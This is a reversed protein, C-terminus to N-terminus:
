SFTSANGSKLQLDKLATHCGKAPRFGHSCSLFQEEFILTLILEIAKQVIKQRPSGIGLPRTEGPKNPKPIYIRRAPTFKFNGSKIIRSTRLIFELDIKDLTANDIGSTMNGPNGKIALYAHILVRPDSILSIIGGYRGDKNIKTKLLGKITTYDVGAVPTPIPEYSSFLSRSGFLLAHSPQKGESALSSSFSQWGVNPNESGLRTNLGLNGLYTDKLSLQTLRECEYWMNSHPDGSLLVTYINSLIDVEACSSIWEVYYAEIQSGLLTMDGWIFTDLKDVEGYWNCDPVIKHVLNGSLETVM